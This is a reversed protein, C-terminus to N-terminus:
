PWAGLRTHFKFRGTLEQKGGALPSYASNLGGPRFVNFIHTGVGASPNAQPRHLSANAVTM